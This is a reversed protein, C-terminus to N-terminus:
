KLDFAILPNKYKNYVADSPAPPVKKTAAVARLAPGCIDDSGSVKQFDLITGDRALSIRINCTKGLLAARDGIFNRNIARKILGAYEDGVRGGDAGSVTGAGSGTTGGLNQNGGSKASGGGITGSNMFDDLASQQAAKEAAAKAKADAAAKTKADAEAKAILKQAEENGKEVGERYIKDTLEQIKNEM